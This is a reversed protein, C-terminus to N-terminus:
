DGTAKAIAERAQEVDLQCMTAPLEPLRLVCDLLRQLMCLTNPSAAGMRANALNEAHENSPSRYDAIQEGKSGYVIPGPKMGVHWHEM